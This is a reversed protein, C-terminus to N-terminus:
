RLLPVESLESRHTMWSPQFLRKAWGAFRLSGYEYRVMQGQCFNRIYLTILGSKKAIIKQKLALRAVLKVM